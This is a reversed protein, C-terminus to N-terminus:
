SVTSRAVPVVGFGRTGHRGPVDAFGPTSGAGAADAIGTGEGPDPAHDGAVAGDNAIEPGLDDCVRPACLWV